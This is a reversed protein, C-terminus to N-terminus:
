NVGRSIQVVKHLGHPLIEFLFVRGNEGAYSGRLEEDVHVVGRTKSLLFASSPFSSGSFDERGRCLRLSVSSSDRTTETGKDISEDGSSMASM